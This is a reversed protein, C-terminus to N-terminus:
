FWLYIYLFVYLYTSLHSVKIAVAHCSPPPPDLITLPTVLEKRKKWWKMVEGMLLKETVARDLGKVRQGLMLATRGESDTRHFSRGVRCWKSRGM